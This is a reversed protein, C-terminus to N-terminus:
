IKLLGKVYHIGYIKLLPELQMKVAEAQLLKEQKKTIEKEKLSITIRQGITEEILHSPDHLDQRGLEYMKFALNNIYDQEAKRLGREYINLQRVQDKDLWKRRNQKALKRLRFNEIFKEQETM